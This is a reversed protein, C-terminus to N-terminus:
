WTAQWVRQKLPNDTRVRRWGSGSVVDCLLDHQLGEAGARVVDSRVSENATVEYGSVGDCSLDQSRTEFARVDNAIIKSPRQGLRM